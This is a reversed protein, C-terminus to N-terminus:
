DRKRRSSAAATQLTGEDEVAASPHRHASKSKKKPRVSTEASAMTKSPGINAAIANAALNRKEQELRQKRLRDALEQSRRVSDQAQLVDASSRIDAVDVAKGGPCPTESYSRGGDGCRWVTKAQLSSCALTICLTSVFTIKRSMKLM